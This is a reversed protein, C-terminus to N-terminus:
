PPPPGGSGKLVALLATLETVNLGRGFGFRPAPEQQRPQEPVFVRRAIESRLAAPDEVHELFPELANLDLHLRKAVREERRHEAAQRACYGAVILGIVSVGTKYLTFQISDDATSDIARFLLAATGLGIVVTAVTWVIANRAQRAAWKGYDGAIAHRSTSDLLAKARGEREALVKLIENAKAAQQDHADKARVAFADTENKAAERLEDVEAVFSQSRTQAEAEFSTRQTEIQDTLRSALATVEAQSQEIAAKLGALEDKAATTREQGQGDIEDLRVSLGDARERLAGIMEDVTTHFRSAAARTAKTATDAPPQPWTRLNTLIQATQAVATDLQAAQAGPDEVFTAMAMRVADAGTQAQDLLGEDMLYPNLARCQTLEDYVARVREIKHMDEGDPKPAASLTAGLGEVADWLPHQQYDSPRM